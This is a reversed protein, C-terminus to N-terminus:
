KIREPYLDYNRGGATVRVAKLEHRKADTSRNGRVTVKDGVALTAATLGAGETRSAPALTVDWVQGSSMIQLTAHPNVLQVAKHVTGSVEVQDNGQGSWGHHAQASLGFLGLLGATAVFSKRISPM